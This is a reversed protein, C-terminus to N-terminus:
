SGGVFEEVMASSAAVVRVLRAVFFAVFFTVVLTAALFVTAFFAAALFVAALFDVELDDTSAGDALMSNTASFDGIDVADDSDATVVESFELRRSPRTGPPPGTEDRL